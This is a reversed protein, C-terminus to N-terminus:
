RFRRGGGGGRRRDRREWGPRQRPARQTYAATAEPARVEVRADVTGNGRAEADLLAEAEAQAEELEEEEASEDEVEETEGVEATEPSIPDASFPAVAELMSEGVAAIEHAHDDHHDDAATTEEEMEVFDDEELEEVYHALDAEDEEIEEEAMTGM